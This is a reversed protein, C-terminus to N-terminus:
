GHVLVYMNPIMFSVLKKLSSYKDFSSKCPRCNEYHVIQGCLLTVAELIQFLNKAEAEERRSAPPCHIM